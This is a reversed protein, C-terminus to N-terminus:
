YFLACKGRWKLLPNSGFYIQGSNFFHNLHRRRPPGFRKVLAAGRSRRGSGPPAKKRKVSRRKSVVGELGM